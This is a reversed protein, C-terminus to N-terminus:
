YLTLESVLAEFLLLNFLNEKINTSNWLFLICIFILFSTLFFFFISIGDLGFFFNINLIGFDLFFIEVFQYNYINFNFKSLIYSSLFLILGGITLSFLKIVQVNKSPIILLIFLSIFLLSFILSLIM